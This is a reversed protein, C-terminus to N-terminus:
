PSELNSILSIIEQGYTKRRWPGILDIEALQEMSTPAKRALKWLADKSMVVESSVGRSAAREKRWEHLADFRQVINEPPRSGNNQRPPPPTSRSLGRKVATLIDRGYRGIQQRSMGKINALYRNSRPLQEAIAYMTNDNMVKFPPVDRRRAEKDRFSFLEFLVALQREELKHTGNMNWFDLPDFTSSTWTARTVEEFLEAAEELHDGAELQSHLEDRLPILYHTDIQAYKRMDKPLPRKGWNARQFRKSIQLNYQEELISALGAREWGLIRTAVMTDFLNSFVWGFDRRLCMIDYEAAHLVKEIEPNAIMEGLFPLDRNLDLALPDILFDMRHTSVQILCVQENYAYLSNSETDLAIIAESQLSRYLNTIHNHSDVMVPDPLNIPKRISSSM